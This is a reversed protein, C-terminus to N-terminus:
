LSKDNLKTGINKAITKCKEYFSYAEKITPLDYDIEHTLINRRNSMLEYENLLEDELPEIGMKSWSNIRKKVNQRSYAMVHYDIRGNFLSEFGRTKLQQLSFKEIDILELKGNRLEERYCEFEYYELLSFQLTIASIPLIDKSDSIIDIQKNENLNMSIDEIDIKKGGNSSIPVDRLINSLTTSTLDNLGIAYPVDDFIRDINNAGCSLTPPTKWIPNNVGKNEWRTLKDIIVTFDNIMLLQAMRIDAIRSYKIFNFNMKPMLYNKTCFFYIFQLFAFSFHKICLLSARM